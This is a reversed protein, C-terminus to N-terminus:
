PRAEPSSAGGSEGDSAGDHVFIKFGLGAVERRARFGHDILYSRAARLGVGDMQGKRGMHHRNAVFEFHQGRAQHRRLLQDDAHRRERWLLDVPKGPRDVGATDDVGLGVVQDTFQIVM